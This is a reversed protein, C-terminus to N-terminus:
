MLYNSGVGSEKWRLTQVLHRVDDEIFQLSPELSDRNPVAYFYLSGRVFNKSSDTLYFQMNCAAEGQIDDIEGFLRQNRNEVTQVKISSAKVEHSIVFERCEDTYNNLDRNLTKYSLYLNCHFLTFYINLWCPETKQGTDKTVSAYDPYEFTFPCKNLYTLYKKEPFSIRFYGKRKPVYENTNM